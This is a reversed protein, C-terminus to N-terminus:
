SVWNLKAPVKRKLRQVSQGQPRWLKQSHVTYQRESDSRPPPFLPKENNLPVTKFKGLVFKLNALIKPELIDVFCKLLEYIRNKLSLTESGDATEKWVSLVKRLQDSSHSM